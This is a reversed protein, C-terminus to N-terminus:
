SYLDFFYEKYCTLFVLFASEIISGANSVINVDCFM